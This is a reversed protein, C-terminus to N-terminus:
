RCPIQHKGHLASAVSLWCRPVADSAREEIANLQHSLDLLKAHDDAKAAKRLVSSVGHSLELEVMFKEKDGDDLRAAFSRLGETVRCIREAHDQIEGPRNEAVAAAVREVSYTFARWGTYFDPYSYADVPAGDAGYCVSSDNHPEAAAARHAPAAMLFMASITTLIVSVRTM